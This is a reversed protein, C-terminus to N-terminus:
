RLTGKAGCNPCEIQIPSHSKIATFSYSCKPCSIKITKQQSEPQSQSEQASTVGPQITLVPKDVEVEEEKTGISAKKKKALIFFLIIVTVVGALIFLLLYVIPFSEEDVEQSKKITTFEFEMGNELEHGALDEADTGISIQYLTEYDLPDTFNITLTQNQNSWSLSYEKYPTISIASEVSEIDMPESFAITIDIDPQVDISKDDPTISIVSPPTTDLMFVFWKENINGALDDARITINYDGDEWDTTNLDYPAEFDSFIDQNISYTVSDLNADNVDFEIDSALTLLSNNEPSNLIIEPLITDKTFVYWKEIFNGALDDAYVTITYEGDLWTSINILFPLDLLVPSGQNKSYTTQNLNVDSITLNIEFKTNLMSSNNPSNLIISPPKSDITFNYWTTNTNNYFDVAYIELTINGDKWETTDINFPYDLPEDTEEDKSFTVLDLHIDSISLNIVTGLKIVSNNSPSILEIIPPSDDVMWPEMLPYNDQSDSDIIYPTDGIGDSGIQDQNPGRFVDEGVYDSWYNGGLPYGRDWVNASQSGESAQKTNNIFNNHYIDNVFSWYIVIGFSNNSICNETVNNGSSDMGLYIGDDYNSIIINKDIINRQGREFFIGDNFNSSFNNYSINNERSYWILEIGNRNNSALNDKILNYWCGHLLIGSNNNSLANNNTINNNNSFILAIGRSNISADNVMVTNNNSSYLLMGDDNKWFNNESIQNGTSNKVYIGYLSNLSANIEKITNNSSFGLEIGVTCNILEQNELIINSCNALIIQGAGQPIMGGTQNKLYYVPKGNVTNSIDIYHTNWNGLNMGDIVIGNKDMINNSIKTINSEWLSIGSIKNSNINNDMIINGSSDSTVIGHNGNSHINNNTINNNLSNYLSIGDYSNIYATNQNISNNNSDLLRIGTLNNLYAINSIIENYNSNRLVIGSQNISHIGNHSVKCNEVNYFEIGSDWVGKGANSINFNTINAWNKTIVVVDGNGGGDIITNDRDEGTLNISKDVVVNEYYTGSYVYVTNGDSSANIADQIKTYDAGGDDNVYITIAKTIPSIQITIVVLSTVIFLGLWLAAIKKM